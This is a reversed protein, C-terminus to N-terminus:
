DDCCNSALAIAGALGANDGLNPPVVYNHIENNLLPHAIYGNLLEHLKNRILPFLQGQKMVGGGMIIKHPALILVYNMLAHALYHAEMAWAPHDKGLEVASKRWRAGIAPGSAMGELCDGHYPCCGKFTDDSLRRVYIHGMEPHSLGHVIEGGVVAGAGIGTGITIYLCSDLGKAAGWKYEALAAGNVDTDFAIPLALREQIAGVINYQGWHPKPTTTIFGYGSSSAIPDIPGFSGIGIAEISKGEFYQFVQTMTEEPTTTPFSTRDIIKGDEYGIGCVFKTGGAEIGGLLKM